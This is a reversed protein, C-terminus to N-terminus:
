TGPGSELWGSDERGTSGRFTKTSERVAHEEVLWGSAVQKCRENGASMLRSRDERSIRQGGLMQVKEGIQFFQCETYEGDGRRKSFPDKEEM